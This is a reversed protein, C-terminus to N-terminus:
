QSIWGPPPIATRYKSENCAATGTIPSPVPDGFEEYNTLGLSTLAEEEIGKRNVFISSSTSAAATFRGFVFEESDASTMNGVLAAPPPANLGSNDDVLDKLVKYYEQASPTLILQEVEIVM